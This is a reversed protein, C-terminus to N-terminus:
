EQCESPFLLCFREPAEVVLRPHNRGAPLQPPVPLLRFPFYGVVLNLYLFVSLM